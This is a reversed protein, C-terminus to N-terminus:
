YWQALLPGIIPALRLLIVVMEKPCYIAIRSPFKKLGGVTNSADSFILFVKLTLVFNDDSLNSILYILYGKSAENDLGANVCLVIQVAM